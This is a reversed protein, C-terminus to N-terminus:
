FPATALTARFFHSTPTLMANVCSTSACPAYPQAERVLLRHMANANTRSVPEFAPTRMAFARETARCSGQKATATCCDRFSSVIFMFSYWGLLIKSAPDTM